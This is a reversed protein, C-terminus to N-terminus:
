NRFGHVCFLPALCLTMHAVIFGVFFAWWVPRLFCIAGGFLVATLLLKLGEGIYLSRVIRQAQRAGQYRFLMRAFVM